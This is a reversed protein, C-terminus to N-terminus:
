KMSLAVGAAGLMLPGALAFPGFKIRMKVVRAKLKSSSSPPLYRRLSEQKLMVAYDGPKMGLDDKVEPNAGYDLLLRVMRPIEDSDDGLVALHLPTRKEKNTFNGLANAEIRAGQDLLMRAIEQLGHYAALHLPELWRMQFKFLEAKAKASVSAGRRLLLAVTEAQGCSVALHLATGYQLDPPDRFVTEIEVGQHLLQDVVDPRGGRIAHYLTNVSNSFRPNTVFELVSSRNGSSISRDLRYSSPVLSDSFSRHFSSLQTERWILTSSQPPPSPPPDLLEIVSMEQTSSIIDSAECDHPWELRIPGDPETQRSRPSIKDIADEVLWLPAPATARRSITQRHRGPRSSATSFDPPHSDYFSAPPVEHPHSVPATSIRLPSLPRPSAVSCPLVTGLEMTEDSNPVFRVKTYRENRRELPSSFSHSTAQDAYPIAQPPRSWPRVPWVSLPLQIHLAEAVPLCAINESMTNRSSTALDREAMELTGLPVVSTSLTSPCSLGVWEQGMSTIWPHQLASEASLRDRPSPKLLAEAFALGEESWQELIPRRPFPFKGDNRCFLSVERPTFPFQRTALYYVMIGLSWMDMAGPKEQCPDILGEVEPATYYRTGRHPTLNWQQEPPIRKSLGFDAIKVSWPCEPPKSAM